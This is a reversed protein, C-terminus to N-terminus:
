TLISNLIKELKIIKDIEVFEDPKHAQYSDGAGISFCPIQNFAQWLMQIDIYGITETPNFSNPLNKLYIEGKKTLWCGLDHRIAFEILDVNQKISETKIFDIVKNATVTTISPRIDIIFQCIDAIVNGQKGLILGNEDQGQFQGGNIYALNYVTPGLEPNTFADLWNFLENIIQTSKTIANTGSKPKAAHGSQGKITCSIEILGRCGNTISLNSGDLSIIRKPNIKSKYQCIFEKIGIFDYEEDIYFLFMTNPLLAKNCALSIMTAVGSKMDSAGLGYLKNDIITPTIPDKTWSSSPQVTDIHGIVLNDIINSNQAIVNFRNGVVIQKNIKLQSNNKLYDFIFQGILSENTQSDLWSPISILDSTLKTTNNM